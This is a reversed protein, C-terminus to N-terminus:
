RVELKIWCTAPPYVVASIIPNTSYIQAYEDEIGVNNQVLVITTHEPTVAPGILKAMSPIAKSDQGFISSNLIFGDKKVVDYNSRCVATTSAVQSLLWLYVTGVGGAGFLLIRPPKNSSM